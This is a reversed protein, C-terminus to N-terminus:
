EVESVIPAIFRHDKDKGWQVQWHRGDFQDVLIFTYINSTPCLTFRGNEKSDGLPKVNIAAVWRYGADSGWQVQWVLGTRTDLKLFTYINQTRFLRYPVDTRQTPEPINEQGQALVPSVFALTGGAVMLLLMVKKLM